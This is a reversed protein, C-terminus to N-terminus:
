GIRLCLIMSALFDPNIHAPNTDFVYLRIVLTSLALQLTLQGFPIEISRPM